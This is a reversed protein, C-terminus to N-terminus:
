KLWHALKEYNHPEAKLLKRFEAQLHDVQQADEYLLSIMELYSLNIRDVNFNVTVGLHLGTQKFFQMQIESLSPFSTEFKIRSYGVGM